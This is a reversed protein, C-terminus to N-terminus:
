CQFNMLILVFLSINLGTTRSIALPTKWFIKGDFCIPGSTLVIDHSTRGRQVNYWFLNEIIKIYILLVNLVSLIFVLVLPLTTIVSDPIIKLKGPDRYVKYQMISYFINYKCYRCKVCFLWYLYMSPLAINRYENM